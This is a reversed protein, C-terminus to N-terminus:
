MKKMHLFCRGCADVDYKANHASFEEDFFHKYLETLKPYKNYVRGTKSTTQIKVIDVSEKMTCFSEINQIKELLRVGNADGGKDFRNLQISLVGVDFQINHAVMMDIPTKDFTEHLHSIVEKICVGHKMAYETTIGHVNVSREPFIYDPSHPKVVTYYESLKTADSYDNGVQYICYAISVIYPNSNILGTTELDFVMINKTAM